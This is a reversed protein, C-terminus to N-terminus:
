LADAIKLVVLKNKQFASEYESHPCPAWVSGVELTISPIGLMYMVYERYSGDATSKPSSYGGSDAYGTLKRAISYMLQTNKKIKADACDGFVIQGMAHYNVVGLLNQNKKLNKTLTAIAASEPESLAKLGSYGEAGRKGKVVFKDAPFNRNLDVGHSNAKWRPTKTQSITVGDPNAMVIYHIQMNKLVKAPTTGSLSNNYYRLYYEIERMLVVSCIYERAHLTSVVLLSDKADPNGIAFDYITRGEVSTGIPTLECYNSYQKVLERMDAEMQKYTYKQTKINVAQTHSFRITSGKGAKEEENVPIIKYDYVKGYTVAKDTFETGVTEGLEKYAGNAKKRYIKYYYTNESEDWELLVQKDSLSTTHLGTVKEPVPLEEQQEEESPEDKPDEQQDEGPQNEPKLGEESSNEGITGPEESGNGSPEEGSTNNEGLAAETSNEGSTDEKRFGTEASNEGSMNEENSGVESQNEVSLSEGGAMREQNTNVKRVTNGSVSAVPQKAQNVMNQACAPQAQFTVCLAAAACTMLIKKYKM